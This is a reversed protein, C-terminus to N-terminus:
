PSVLEVLASLVKQTHGEVQVPREIWRIIGNADILFTTREVGLIRKGNVEKEHLVNFKRCVDMSEDSLLTFNLGHKEIFDEHSHSTDPSIGILIADYDDLEEIHDRFSCAEQTCGPTNDKPYFYLVAPGGMLDESSFVHGAQDKAKFHPMKDGISLQHSM